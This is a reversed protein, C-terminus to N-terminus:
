PVGEGILTRGGETGDAVCRLEARDRVGLRRVRALVDVETRGCSLRRERPGHHPQAAIAAPIGM